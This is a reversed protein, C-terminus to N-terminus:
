PQLSLGGKEEIVDRALAKSNARMIEAVKKYIRCGIADGEVKTSTIIDKKDTILTLKCNFNYWDTKTGFNTVDSVGPYEGSQSASHRATTNPLTLKVNETNVWIYEESNPLEHHNDPNDLFAAVEEISQGQLIKLDADINGVTACGNLLLSIVGLLTILLKKHMGTTM